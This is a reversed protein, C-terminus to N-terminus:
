EFQSKNPAVDIHEVNGTNSFTVAIRMECKDCNGGSWGSFLVTRDSLCEIPRIRYERNQLYKNRVADSFESQLDLTYNTEDIILSLKDDYYFSPLLNVRSGIQKQAPLDRESVHMAVGTKPDMAEQTFNEEIYVFNFRGCQLMDQKISMFFDKGDIRRMPGSPRQQQKQVDHFESRIIDSQDKQTQTPPRNSSSSIPNKCGCTLALLVIPLIHKYILHM